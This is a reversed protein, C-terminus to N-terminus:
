RRRRCAHHRESILAGLQYCIAAAVVWYLIEVALDIGRADRSWSLDGGHAWVSIYGLTAADVLLMLAMSKFALARGVFDRWWQGAGFVPLTYLVVFLTQVPAAIMVPLDRWM